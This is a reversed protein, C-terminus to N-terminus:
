GCIDTKASKAVERSSGGFHISGPTSDSALFGPIERVRPGCIVRIFAGPRIILAIPPVVRRTAEIRDASRIAFPPQDAGRISAPGNM